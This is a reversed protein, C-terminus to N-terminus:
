GATRRARPLRPLLLVSLTLGYDILAVVPTAIVALWLWIPAWKVRPVPIPKPAEASSAAKDPPAESRPMSVPTDAQDRTTASAQTYSNWRSPTNWRYSLGFALVAFAIGLVLSPGSAYYWFLGRIIAWEGSVVGILFGSLLALALPIVLNWM